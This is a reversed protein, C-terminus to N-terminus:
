SRGAVAEGVGLSPPLPLHLRETLAAWSLLSRTGGGRRAARNAGEPTRRRKERCRGLPSGKCIVRGFADCQRPTSQAVGLEPRPSRSACHKGRHRFGRRVRRSPPTAPVPASNPHLGHGGCWRRFPLPRRARGAPGRSVAIRPRCWAPAVARPLPSRGSSSAWRGPSVMVARLRPPPVDDLVRPSSTSVFHHRRRLGLRQSLQGVPDVGPPRNRAALLRGCDRSVEGCRITCPVSIGRRHQGTLHQRASPGRGHCATPRPTGPRNSPAVGGHGQLRRRGDSAEDAGPPGPFAPAGRPRRRPPPAPGPPRRCAAFELAPEALPGHICQRHCRRTEQRRPSRALPLGDGLALKPTPGFGQSPRWQPGPQSVRARSCEDGPAYMM